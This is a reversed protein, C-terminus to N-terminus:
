CNLIHSFKLLVQPLYLHWLCLHSEYHHSRQFQYVYEEESHQEKYYADGEVKRKRDGGKERRGGESKGVVESTPNISIISYRNCCPAFALISSKSESV